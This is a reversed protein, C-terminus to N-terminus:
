VTVEGNIWGHLFASLSPALLHRRGESPYWAWIQDHPEARDYGFLIGDAGANAFVLWTEPPGLTARAPDSRGAVITDVEWMLWGTEIPRGEIEMVDMIGDCEALFASLEAPLAMGLTRAAQTLRAETAGPGFRPFSSAASGKRESYAATVLERWGM